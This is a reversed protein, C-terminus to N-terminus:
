KRQVSVRWKDPSSVLSEFLTTLPVSVCVMDDFTRVYDFVLPCSVVSDRWLFFMDSKYFRCNVYDGVHGRRTQAIVYEVSDCSALLRLFATDTAVRVISDYHFKSVSVLRNPQPM